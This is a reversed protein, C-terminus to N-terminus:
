SITDSETKLKLICICTTETQFHNNVLSVSESLGVPGSLSIVSAWQCVLSRNKSAESRLKSAGPRPGIVTVATIVSGHKNQKFKMGDFNFHAYTM